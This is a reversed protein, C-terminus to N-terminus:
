GNLFTVSSDPFANSQQVEEQLKRNKILRSLVYKGLLFM